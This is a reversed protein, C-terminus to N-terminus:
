QHSLVFLCFVFWNLFVTVDKAQQSITPATGDEYEIGGDNLPPPMAIAGGQFYPNYYLGQRLTVGHPPERYGTLLAYIYDAGGHRAKVILSLDPPLAGGNIYRAYEDNPYPKPLPDSLRGPREFYEGADNPGDKVVVSEALAKAQVESHTEGILQRYHLYRVSHCTSCVQRYVEFGRRMSLPWSILLMNNSASAGQTILRPSSAMTLGHIHLHISSM